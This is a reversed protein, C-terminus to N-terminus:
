KLGIPKFDNFYCELSLLSLTWKYIANAQLELAGIISIIICGVVCLVRTLGNYECM